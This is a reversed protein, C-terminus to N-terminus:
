KADEMGRLKQLAENRDRVVEGSKEWLRLPAPKQGDLLLRVEQDSLGPGMVGSVAENTVEFRPFVAFKKETRGAQARLHLWENHFAHAEKSLEGFRAIEAMYRLKAEYIKVIQDNMKERYEAALKAYEEDLEPLHPALIRANEAEIRRIMADLASVEKEAEERAKHQKLLATRDFEKGMMSEIEADAKQAKEEAKRKMVHLNAIRENLGAQKAKFSEFAM